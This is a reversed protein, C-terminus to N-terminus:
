SVLLVLVTRVAEDAKTREITVLVSDGESVIYSASALNYVIQATIVDLSLLLIVVRLFIKM